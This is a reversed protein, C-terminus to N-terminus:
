EMKKSVAVFSGSLAFAITGILDFIEPLSLVTRNRWFINFPEEVFEKRAFWQSLSFESLRKANM